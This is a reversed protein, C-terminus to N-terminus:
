HRHMFWLLFRRIGEEVSIKPDFGLLSKAKSIDACTYPVDGPEEPLYVLQARRGLGDEILSIVTKLCVPHFGGLNYIEYGKCNEGALIIGEVIDDVYTYDRQSSGDGYIPVPEGRHIRTAFRHIAMEPRQRPGYVTFLRLVVVDIRHLLHYTHCLLEAARKTAAYPSVPQDAEDRESFVGEKRVGYVSSSSGLLFRHVGHRRCAELLQLTGRVNIEEYLLPVHISARVGPRAALHIVMDLLHQHFVRDLTEADRVDGEVLTFKPHQVVKQLNERKIAPSYYDDFSDLCVVQHGHTLLREALHSGIFGAGGTVLIKAM